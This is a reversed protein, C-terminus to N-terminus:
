ASRDIRLRIVEGVQASEALSFQTSSVITYDSSSLLYIGNLFIQLESGVYTQGNPLTINVGAACDALNIQGTTAGSSVVTLTKDYITISGSEAVMRPLGNTLALKSM